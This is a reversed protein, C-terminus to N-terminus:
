SRAQLQCCLPEEMVQSQLLCFSKNKPPHQNASCKGFFPLQLRYDQSADFPDAGSFSDGASDQLDGAHGSAQLRELLENAPKPPKKFTKTERVAGKADVITVTIRQSSMVSASTPLVASCQMANCQMATELSRSVPDETRAKKPFM